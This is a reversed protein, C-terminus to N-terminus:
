REDKPTKAKTAEDAKGEKKTVTLTVECKVEGENNWALCVYPGADEAKVPEIEFTNSYKDCFIRYRGGDTIEKGDKMWKVLPSFLTQYEIYICHYM